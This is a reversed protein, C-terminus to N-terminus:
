FFDIYFKRNAYVYVYSKISCVFVSDTFAKHIADFKNKYRKSCKSGIGSNYHCMHKKRKKILAIYKKTQISAYKIKELRKCEKEIQFSFKKENWNRWSKRVFQPYSLRAHMQWQGCARGKDGRKVRKKLRSEIWGLSLLDIDVYGSNLDYSLDFLNEAHSKEIQGKEYYIFNNNRYDTSSYIM